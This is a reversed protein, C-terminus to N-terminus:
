FNLSKACCNMKQFNPNDQCIQVWLNQLEATMIPQLNKNGLEKIWQYNANNAKIINFINREIRENKIRESNNKESERKSNDAYKAFFLVTAILILGWWWYKKLIQM